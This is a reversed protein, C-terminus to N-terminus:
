GRSLEPYLPFAACLDLVQRRVGAILDEDTPAELVEAVWDAIQQM